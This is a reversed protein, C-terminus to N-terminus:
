KKIVAVWRGNFFNLLISQRNSDKVSDVMRKIHQGNAAAVIDYDKISANKFLNEMESITYSAKVSEIYFRLHALNDSSLGNIVNLIVKKNADRRLDTLYIAGGNKVVRYMEELVKVPNKFHHFTDQCMVFDFSNDKFPMKDARGFVLKANKVIKKAISLLTKSADLGVIQVDPHTKKLTLMLEGYGCGVDLVKGSFKIKSDIDAVVLNYSRISTQPKYKSKAYQIAESGNMVEDSEPIRENLEDYAFM